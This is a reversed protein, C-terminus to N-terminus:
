NMLLVGILLIAGIAAVCAVGIWYRRASTRGDGAPNQQARGDRFEGGEPPASPAGPARYGANPPGAAVGQWSQTPAAAAADEFFRSEPAAFTPQAPHHVASPFPALSPTMAPIGAPPVGPPPSDAPTGLPPMGPPLGDVQLPGSTAAVSATGPASQPVFSVQPLLVMPPQGAGGAPIADEPLAYVVLGYLPVAYAAPAAPEPSASQDPQPPAADAEAAPGDGVPPQTATNTAAIDFPPAPDGGVFLPQETPASASDPPAPVDTAPYASVDAPTVYEPPAPPYWIPPAPASSAYGNARPPYGAHPPPYGAPAVAQEPPLAAYGSAPMYNPPSPREYPSYGSFHQPYGSPQYGHPPAYGPPIYLGNTPPSGVPPAPTPSTAHEAPRVVAPPQQVGQAPDLPRPSSQQVRDIPDSGEVDGDRVLYTPTGSSFYRM